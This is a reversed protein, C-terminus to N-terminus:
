RDGTRLAEARAAARVLRAARGGSARLARPLRDDVDRPTDLMPTAWRATHGLMFREAAIGRRRWEVVSMPSIDFVAGAAQAVPHNGEFYPTGPQEACIVLTRAMLDPPPQTGGHLAVWEHPPVLAYVRGPQVAPFGDLSVSSRVGLASLEDRIVQVLEAFFLNQRRGLVFTIELM